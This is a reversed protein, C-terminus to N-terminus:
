LVFASHSCVQAKTGLVVYFPEERDSSLEDVSMMLHILSKKLRLLNEVANAIAINKRILINELENQKQPCRARFGESYATARKFDASASCKINATTTISFARTKIVNTNIKRACLQHALECM